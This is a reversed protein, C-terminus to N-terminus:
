GINKRILEIANDYYRFTEVEKNSFPSKDVYFKGYESTKISLRNAVSGVKQASVGLLKGIETASYTKREAEPLPLLFEGALEKTAYADMIQSYTESKGTYKDSIARFIKARELGIKKEELPSIVVKEQLMKECEIFYLRFKKGIESRQIMCLEKAMEVSIYYEKTPRGGSNKVNKNIVGDKVGQENKLVTYDKNEEFGYECMREFWNAFQAKVELKTWLERASVTQKGDKEEIRILENM